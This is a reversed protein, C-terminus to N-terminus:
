AAGSSWCSLKTRTRATLCSAPTLVLAIPVRKAVALKIANRVAAAAALAKQARLGKLVGSKAAREVAKLPRYTPVLYTGRERM